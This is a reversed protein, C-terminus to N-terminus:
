NVYLESFYLSEEVYCVALKNGDYNRGSLKQSAKEADQKFEFEVFVSGVEAGLKEEGNRIVKLRAIQGIKSLEDEM